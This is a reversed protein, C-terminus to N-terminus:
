AQDALGQDLNTMLSVKEDYSTDLNEVARRVGAFEKEVDLLLSDKTKQLLLVIKNTIDTFAEM